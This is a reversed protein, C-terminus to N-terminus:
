RGYGQGMIFNELNNIMDQKGSIIVDIVDRMSVMGVLRGHDMVPLHRIRYKTMLELCEEITQESDVTVMDKTMIDEVPTDLSHRGMLIVKRAYDRETFIGVMLGNEVVLLAGVNKEAMLELAKYVTDKPSVSWTDHDTLMDMLQRVTIV